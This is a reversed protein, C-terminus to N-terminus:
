QFWYTKSPTICADLKIDHAGADAIISIPENFCLGIKKGVNTTSLFRDYFGKGYGVRNGLLDFALLPIIVMDIEGNYSEEQQPELINFANKKLREKGLYEHHTMLFQNFDTKPVLIKINSYNAKLWDILLFTNPEQKEIIPLFIHLTQVESFDIKKFNNLLLENLETAELSTYARRIELAKKRIESKLM